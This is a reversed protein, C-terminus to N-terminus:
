QNKVLQILRLSQKIVTKAVLEVLSSDILFYHNIIIIGTSPSLFFVLNGFYPWRYRHGSPWFYRTGVDRRGCTAPSAALFDCIPLDILAHLKIMYCGSKSQRFGTRVIYVSRVRFVSLWSSALIGVTIIIRRLKLAQCGAAARVCSCSFSCCGRVHFLKWLPM